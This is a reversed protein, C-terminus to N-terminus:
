PTLIPRRMRAPGDCLGTGTPARFRCLGASTASLADKADSVSSPLRALVTPKPAIPPRRSTGVPSSAAPPSGPHDGAAPVAPQVTSEARSTTAVEPQRTVSTGANPPNKAAVTSVSSPDSLSTASGVANAGRRASDHQPAASDHTVDAGSSSQAPQVPATAICAAPFVGAQGRLTGECWDDSVRRVNTVIDGIRLTMDHGYMAVHDSIVRAERILVADASATTDPVNCASAADPDHAPKPEASHGGGISFPEVYTRPFLGRRGNIEGYLWGEDVDQLLRVIDGAHLALEEECSPTFDYLCRMQEAQKPPLQADHAIPTRDPASVLPVVVSIYQKPVLGVEGSHVLRGRMWDEDVDELLEIVDGVGFKLADADSNQTGCASLGVAFPGSVPPGADSDPGPGDADTTPASWPLALEVFTKPFLGQRGNHQGFYWDASVDRLIVVADGARLSLEEGSGSAAFDFLARARLAM